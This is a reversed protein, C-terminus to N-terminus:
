NLSPDRVVRLSSLRITRWSEPPVDDRRDEQSIRLRRDFELVRLLRLVRPSPRVITLTGGSDRMCRDLWKLTRAGSCDLFRVHALDLNVHLPRHRALLVPLRRRLEAAGEIDLDGHLTMGLATWLPPDYPTIM